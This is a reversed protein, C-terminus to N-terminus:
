IGLSCNYNTLCGPPNTPPQAFTRLKKLLTKIETVNRSSKKSQIVFNKNIEKFDIAKFERNFHGHKNYYNFTNAYKEASYKLLQELMQAKAESQKDYTEEAQFSSHKNEHFPQLFPSNNNEDKKVNFKKFNKALVDRIDAHLKSRDSKISHSQTHPRRGHQNTTILLFHVVIWLFGILILINLAERVRKPSVAVQPCLSM